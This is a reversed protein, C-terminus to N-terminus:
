KTKIREGVQRYVTRCRDLYGPETELYTVGPLDIAFPCHTAAIIQVKEKDAKNALNTWLNAAWPISLSRDPEDLLVTPIRQDPARKLTEPKRAPQKSRTRKPANGEQKQPEPPFFPPPPSGSGRLIQEIRKVWGTWLDNMLVSAFSTDPFPILSPNEIAGFLRQMRSLTLQGASSKMALVDQIQELGFTDDIYSAHAGPAKTPDIFLIGRGDHDPLVGDLLGKELVSRERYDRISSETLVSVGGQWACLTKAIALLLTSKGSGNPGFILTLGPNFDVRKKGQLFSVDRWWPVISRAPDSVELGYIM